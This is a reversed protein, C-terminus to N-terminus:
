CEGLVHRQVAGNVDVSFGNTCRNKCRKVFSKAENLSTVEKVRVNLGNWTRNDKVMIRVTM